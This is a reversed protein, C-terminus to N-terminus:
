VGILVYGAWFKPMATEGELMDLKALRLAVAYPKGELIYQFLKKTLVSSVEDYVKFLTYIVNKAGAALFGRNMALMGEGKALQGIGTECCSLVVLDAQLNLLYADQLYFIADTEQENSNNAATADDVNPSFVIGSLNAEKPHPFSHASVHVYKHRIAEKQFRDVSAKTHLFAISDMGHEEFLQKITLVEKESYLLEQYVKGRVNITRTSREHYATTLAEEKPLSKLLKDAYVPAFGVFSDKQQKVKRAEKLGYKWLSASYHYQINYDLLLYPLDQPSNSSDVSQTLLAEFPLQSLIGDPVILLTPTSDSSLNENNSVFYTTTKQLTAAIPAILIEYLECGLEISEEEFSFNIARVFAKVKSTLDNFSDIEVVEFDQSGIVFIYLAKEGVFYSVITYNMRKSLLSQLDEVGAIPLQRKLQYYKPFDQELKQILTEHRRQTDFLQSQWQEIVQTDIKTNENASIKIKKELIKWERYLQQEKELLEKPIKSAIKATSTQLNFFLLNAKSKESAEFVKPSLGTDHFSLSQLLIGLEIINEYINKSTTRIRLQTGESATSGYLLSITDSVLCYIEFSKQPFTVEKKNEQYLQYLIKAEQKLFEFLLWNDRSAELYELVAEHFKNKDLEFTKDLTAFGKQNYSLALSYKKEHLYTHAIRWYNVAIRPYYRGMVKKAIHIAAEFHHRAKEFYSLGRRFYNKGISAHVFCNKEHYEGFLEEGIALACQLYQLGKDLEGLRTYNFGLRLYSSNVQYSKESHLALNIELNKQFYFMAEGFQDKGGLCDGIYM